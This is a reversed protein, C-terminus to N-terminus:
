SFAVSPQCARELGQRVAWEGAWGAEKKRLLSLLDGEADQAWVQLEQRYEITETRRKLRGWDMASPLQSRHSSM